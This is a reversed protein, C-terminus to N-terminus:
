WAEDPDLKESSNKNLYSFPAGLISNFCYGVFGDKIKEYSNLVKAFAKELLM